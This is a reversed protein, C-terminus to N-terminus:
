LQCITEKRRPQQNSNLAPNAGPEKAKQPTPDGARCISGFVVSVVLGALLWAVFFMLASM